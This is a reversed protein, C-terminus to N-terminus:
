SHFVTRKVQLRLKNQATFVQRMRNHYGITSHRVPFVKINKKRLYM